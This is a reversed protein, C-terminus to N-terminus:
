LRIEKDGNRTEKLPEHTLQREIAALATTRDRATLAGLHDGVSEAFEVSYPV